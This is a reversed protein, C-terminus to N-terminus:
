SEDFIKLLRVADQAMKNSSECIITPTLQKAKIYKALPEFPPTFLEPADDFDLHGLEGKTGFKIPSFHIHINQMKEKGIHKMCYDMVEEVAGSKRLEGQMLCNIHGFDLAPIVRFHVSCIDCVEEYNGIALYRGMTEICIRYDFGTFNSNEELKKMVSELNKKCNAVAKERSLEVQSGIHVVLNRGGMIKLLMLCKEFYGYSKDVTVQNESALNIFYPAHASLLVNHKAAQEGIQKATAESMRIGRGFNVEFATLGMKAVWEPAQITSKYGQEYFLIDNGSPGFRIM